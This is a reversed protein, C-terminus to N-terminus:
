DNPNEYDIAEGFSNTNVPVPCEYGDFPQLNEDLPLADCLWCRVGTYAAKYAYPESPTAPLDEDKNSNLYTVGAITDFVEIADDVPISINGTLAM